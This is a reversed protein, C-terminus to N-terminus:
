RIQELRANLHCLKECQKIADFEVTTIDDSLSVNDRTVSKFICPLSDELLQKMYGVQSEAIDISVEKM